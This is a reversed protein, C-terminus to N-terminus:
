LRIRYKRRGDWSHIKMRKTADEWRRKTGEEDLWEEVQVHKGSLAADLAEGPTAELYMKHSSAPEEACRAIGMLHDMLQSVRAHGIGLLQLDQVIMTQFVLLAGMQKENM